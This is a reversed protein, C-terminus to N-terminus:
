IIARGVTETNSMAGQRVSRFRLRTPSLGPTCLHRMRPSRNTRLRVTVAVAVQMSFMQFLSLIWSSMLVDCRTKDVSM